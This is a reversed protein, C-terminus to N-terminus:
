CAEHSVPPARGGGGATMENPATTRARRWKASEICYCLAVERIGDEVRDSMLKWYRETRGLPAECVSEYDGGTGPSEVLIDSKVLNTIRDFAFKREMIGRMALNAEMTRVRIEDLGLVDFGYQLVMNLAEVACGKGRVAPSDDLMIGAEGIQLGSEEGNSSVKDGYGQIGRLSEFGTDGIAEGTAALVIILFRSKLQISQLQWSSILAEYKALTPKGYRLGPIYSVCSPNQARALLSPADSLTPSRLSLRNGFKPSPPIYISTFTPPNSM